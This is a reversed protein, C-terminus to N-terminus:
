HIGYLKRQNFQLVSFKKQFTYFRFQPIQTPVPNRLLSVFGLGECFGRAQHSLPAQHRMILIVLIVAALFVLLQLVFSRRFLGLRRLFPMPVKSM